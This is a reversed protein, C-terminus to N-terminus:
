ASFSAPGPFKLPSMQKLAVVMEDSSFPKQLEDNMASSVKPQM